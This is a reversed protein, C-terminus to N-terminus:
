FCVWNKIWASCAQVDTWEKICTLSMLQQACQRIPRKDLRLRGSAISAAKTWMDCNCRFDQPFWWTQLSLWRRAALRDCTWPAHLRRCSLNPWKPRLPTHFRCLVAQQRNTRCSCRTLQHLLYIATWAWTLRRLCNRSEAWLSM